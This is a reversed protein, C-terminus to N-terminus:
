GSPSRRSLLEKGRKIIRDADFEKVRGAAIDALGKELEVKLAMFEQPHVADEM